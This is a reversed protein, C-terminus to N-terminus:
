IFVEPLRIDTSTNSVKTIIKVAVTANFSCSRTAPQQYSGQKGQTLLLAVGGVCFLSLYTCVALFM